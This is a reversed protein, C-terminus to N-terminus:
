PYFTSVPNYRPSEVPGRKNRCNWLQRPKCGVALTTEQDRPPTGFQGFLLLRAVERKEPDKGLGQVRFLLGTAKSEGGKFRLALLRGLRPLAM